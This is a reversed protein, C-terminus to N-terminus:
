ERRKGVFDGGRWGGRYAYECVGASVQLCECCARGDSEDVLTGLRSEALYGVCVASAWDLGVM